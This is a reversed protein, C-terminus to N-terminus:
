KKNIKWNIIILKIWKAMNNRNLLMINEKLMMSIFDNCSSKSSLHHVQVAAANGILRVPYSKNTKRWFIYVAHKPAHYILFIDSPLLYILLTYILSYVSCSTLTYPTIWFSNPTYLRIGELIDRSILFKRLFCIMM